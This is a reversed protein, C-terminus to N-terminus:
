QCLRRLKPMKTRHSFHVRGAQIGHCLANSSLIEKIQSKSASMSVGSFCDRPLADYSLTPIVLGKTDWVEAAFRRKQPLQKARKAPLCTTIM